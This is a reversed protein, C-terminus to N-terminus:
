FDTTNRKNRLSRNLPSGIMSEPVKNMGFIKRCNPCIGFDPLDKLVVGCNGCYYYLDEIEKNM